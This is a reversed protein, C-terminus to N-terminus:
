RVKYCTVPYTIEHGSNNKITLYDSLESPSDTNEVHLSYRLGEHQTYKTFGSVTKQTRTNIASAIERGSDYGTSFAMKTKYVKIIKSGSTTSCKLQKFDARVTTISILALTVLLPKLNRM